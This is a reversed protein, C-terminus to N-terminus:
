DLIVLKNKNNLYVISENIFIPFSNLKTPLKVTDLIKGNLNFKVIYSNKLFLFLNNNLISISKLQISKKKSDLFNAINEAIDISYIIKGNKINICVLLNEKTILFLYNDIALPKVISSITIKHETYGSQANLIYLHPDTSIILKNDYLIIPNSFFTEAKSGFSEKVNIFWNIRLNSGISYIVGTTNLYFVTDNNIALSNIFNNKMVTEETPISKRKEGTFKNVFLLENNINALIIYNDIIKINSRFPIKYNKAWILKGTSYDLAYLYGLNDAVYIINNETLFNIKKKIKKYKKKYFNYILKIEQNETSYIIINGKDDAIISSNGDFLFKSNTIHRTLKKSKFIITNLNKYGFNELNNSNQYFENLWKLNIKTPSSLINFNSSPIIIDNFSKDRNDLIKFDKFRVDKLEVENINKWIGTKNDFSCNQLLILFITAFIIKM